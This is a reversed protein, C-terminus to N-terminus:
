AYFQWPKTFMDFQGDNARISVVSSASLMAGLGITLLMAVIVGLFVARRGGASRVAARTRPHLAQVSREALETM